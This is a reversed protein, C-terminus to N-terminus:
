APLSQDFINFIISFTELDLDRDFPNTESLQCKHALTVLYQHNQNAKREVSLERGDNVIEELFESLKQLSQETKTKDRIQHKKYLREITGTSLDCRFIRLSNLYHKLSQITLQHEEDPNSGSDNKHHLNKLFNWRMENEHKSETLLIILIMLQRNSFLQLICTLKRYEELNELWTKYDNTLQHHTRSLRETQKEVLTKLTAIQEHNEDDKM